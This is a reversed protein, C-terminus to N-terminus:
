LYHVMKLLESLPLGSKEPLTQNSPVMELSLRHFVYNEGILSFSFDGGFCGAVTLTFQRLVWAPHSLIHYLPVNVIHAKYKWHFEM